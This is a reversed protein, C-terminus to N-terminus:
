WPLELSRAKVAGSVRDVLESVKLADPGRRVSVAADAVERDGVVALVPVRAQHAARVRGGLPGGDALGARVGAGRLAAVVQEAHAAHADAVPLVRVAEPGLWLPLWGDFHELLIAIFREYSGFIARHVMVPREFQNSEARYALEFREPLLYDLQVSGMQWSRGLADRVHLDIKPGYFAGEGARLEYPVQAGDLAQQLAEEARDWLADDGLRQDPRLSLEAEFQLGLLGYVQQAILLCSQVEGAVQESRCFLHADDQCFARVRLLGNLSGSPELRHVHGQEAIRLPLDRFSRPRSAFLEAHAPCNMPKLAHQRGDVDFSFMREAFKDWHGSRQWLSADALQPCRVEQYDHDVAIQECLDSLSRWIALGRPLWCAMGAAYSPFHFLELQQGLERHSQM